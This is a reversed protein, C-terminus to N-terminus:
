HGGSPTAGARLVFIKGCYPCEVERDELKLFVKPHGLAGGGGDCSVFIEEVEVTEPSQYGQAMNYKGRM